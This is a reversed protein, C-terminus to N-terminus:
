RSRWGALQLLGSRNLVSDLIPAQQADISVLPLRLEHSELLGLRNMM